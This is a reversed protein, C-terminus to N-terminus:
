GSPVLRWGSACETVDPYYGAPAPCYYWFGDITEYPNATPMAYYPIYGPGVLIPVGVVIISRRGHDRGREARNGNEGRRMGDTQANPARLRERDEAQSVAAGCLLTVVLILLFNKM